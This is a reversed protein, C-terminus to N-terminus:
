KLTRAARATVLYLALLPNRAGVECTPVNSSSDRCRKSRTSESAPFFPMLTM